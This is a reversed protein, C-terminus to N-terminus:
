IQVISVGPFNLAASEFTPRNQYSCVQTTSPKEQERGERWDILDFPTVIDTRHELGDDTKIRDLV